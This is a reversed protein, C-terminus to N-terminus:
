ASVVSDESTQMHQKGDNAVAVALVAEAAKEVAVAAKEAVVTTTM